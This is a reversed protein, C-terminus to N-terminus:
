NNSHVPIDNSIREPAISSIVSGCAAPALAAGAQALGGADEAADPLGEAVDGDDRGSRPPRELVLM